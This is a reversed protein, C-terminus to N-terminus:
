GSRGRLLDELLEAAAWGAPATYPLGLRRQQDGAALELELRHAEECSACQLRAADAEDITLKHGRDPCKRLVVCGDASM